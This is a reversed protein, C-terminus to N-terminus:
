DFHMVALIGTGATAIATNGILWRPAHPAARCIAVGLGFGAFCRVAGLDFTRGLGLPGLSMAALVALAIVMAAVARWGRQIAFLWFSVPFSLYAAWEASISWYPENWTLTDHVGWAHTLLLQAPVASLPM